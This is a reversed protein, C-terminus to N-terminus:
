FKKIFDHIHASVEVPSEQSLFHGVGELVVVEQLFPVYKKMGGNHLYEKVGPFHYTIDMDGVMFKVPVKIQVGTWPAM